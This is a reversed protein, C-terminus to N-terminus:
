VVDFTYITGYITNNCNSKIILGDSDIKCFGKGSIITFNRFMEGSVMKKVGSLGNGRNREETETRFDGNLTSEILEGDTKKIGFKMGIKEIFNKRVTSAIGAGTDAFVFRVIGGNCEAYMYWYKHMLEDKNYAHHYVNSMLEILVKQLDLIDKREKSLKEMVFECFERATEPDNKKGSKIQMKETSKPLKNMKSKFYSIFGSEKYLMSADNNKPLNGKFTYMMQVIIKINKMVAILYILADVTVYKVNYSNIFFVNKKREKKIEAIFNNFFLTTEDINNILSFNEPVQIHTEEKNVEKNVKKYSRCKKGKIKKKKIKMKKCRIDHWKKRKKKRKM